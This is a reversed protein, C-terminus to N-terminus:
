RLKGEIGVPFNVQLRSRIVQYPYTTVVAFVKSLAAM